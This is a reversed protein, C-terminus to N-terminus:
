AKKKKKAVPAEAAVEAERAKTEEAAQHKKDIGAEKWAKVTEYLEPCTHPGWMSGPTQTPEKGTPKDPGYHAAPLFVIQSAAAWGIDPPLDCIFAAVNRVRDVQDVFAAEPIPEIASVLSATITTLSAIKGAKVLERVRDQVKSYGDLIDAGVISKERAEDLWKNFALVNASGIIGMLLENSAGLKRLRSFFEFSRRNRNAYEDVSFPQLVPDLQEPNLAIYDVVDADFEKFRAYELWESSTPQLKIHCFRSLLAKNSFDFVGAYDDTPPNASCIVHLNPPFDTEHLRHDLSMQFVFSQMDKRCHNIEDLHLIGYKDPNAVCFAIMDKLWEPMLNRTAVKNASNYQDIVETPIGLLEGAEVNGLRYNVLKHGGEDAFQQPVSSKGVGHFSWCLSTVRAQFLLPLAERYEKLNM